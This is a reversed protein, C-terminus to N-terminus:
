RHLITLQNKKLFSVKVLAVEETINVLIKIIIGHIAVM